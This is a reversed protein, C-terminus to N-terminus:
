EPLVPAQGCDTDLSIYQGDVWGWLDNYNVFWWTHESNTGGVGIVSQYPILLLIDESRGPGARMNLNYEVVAGCYVAATPTPLPTSTHFQERTSTPTPTLTSSPITTPTLATIQTPRPTITATPRGVTVTPTPSPLLVVARTASFQGPLIPILFAACVMLFGIGTSLLGYSREAAFTLARREFLLLVLGAFLETLGLFVILVVPDPSAPTSGTVFTRLFLTTIAAIGTVFALAGNIPGVLSERRRLLRWSAALWGGLMSIAIILPLTVDSFVVSM